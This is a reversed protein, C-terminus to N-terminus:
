GNRAFAPRSFLQEGKEAKPRYRVLKDPMIGNPDKVVQNGYREVERYEGSEDLVYKVRVDWGDEVMRWKEQGDRGICVLDCGYVLYKSGLYQGLVAKGRKGSLVREAKDIQEQKSQAAAVANMLVTKLDTKSHNEGDITTILKVNNQKLITLFHGLENSDATGFRDLRQVLIFDPKRIPIADLM